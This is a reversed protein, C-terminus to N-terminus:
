IILFIMSITFPKFRLLAEMLPYKDITELLRGGGALAKGDSFRRGRFIIAGGPIKM